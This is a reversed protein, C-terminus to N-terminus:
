HPQKQFSNIVRPGEGGRALCAAGERGVMQQKTAQRRLFFVRPNISRLAGGVEALINCVIHCQVNILVHIYVGAHKKLAQAAFLAFAGFSRRDV